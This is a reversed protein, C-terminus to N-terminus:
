HGPERLLDDLLGACAREVIDHVREFGATGEYYPDPVDPSDAAPEFDRLRRINAAVGARRALAQVDALNDSDM